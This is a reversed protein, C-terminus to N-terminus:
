VFNYSNVVVTYYVQGNRYQSVLDDTGDGNMDGVGVITWNKSLPVGINIGGTRKGEVMPWFHVQGNRHQWVIDDTGDGNMDGVGM